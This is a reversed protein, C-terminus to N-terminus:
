QQPMPMPMPQPPLPPPPALDPAVQDSSKTASLGRPPVVRNGEYRQMALGVRKGNYILRRNKAHAPWPDITQTAKNVEIADGVGRTVFETRDCRECEYDWAGQSVALLALASLRVIRRVHKKFGTM